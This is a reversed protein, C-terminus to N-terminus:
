SAFHFFTKYFTKKWLLYQFFHSKGNANKKEALDALRIKVFFIM